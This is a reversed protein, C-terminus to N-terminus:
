GSLLAVLEDGRASRTVWVSQGSRERLILGAAELQGCHYTAMRPSCGIAAALRGMAIPVAAARLLQARTCGLVQTLADPGPAGAGRGSQGPVPYALYVVGPLDFGVLRGAAGAVTPVLVLRRGDLSIRRERVSPVVIEGGAYRIRPFLTNLLAGTAGRVVAAGVRRAEMDILGQSQRWRASVASWADTTAMAYADLWRRPEEAPVRWANPLDAGFTRTLDDVMDSDPLDRLREVQDEVSVDRSPAIPTAVTDPFSRQASAMLPALAFRRSSDVAARAAHASRGTLSSSPRSTMLLVLSLHPARVVDITVRDPDGIRLRTRQQANATM